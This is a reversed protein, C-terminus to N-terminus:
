AAQALQDGDDELVALPIPQSPHLTEAHAHHPLRHALRVVAALAGVIALGLFGNLILTTTMNM